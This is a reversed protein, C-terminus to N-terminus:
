HTIFVNECRLHGCAISCFVNQWLASNHWRELTLPQLFKIVVEFFTKGIASDTIQTHTKVAENICEYVWAEEEVRVIFVMEEIGELLVRALSLGGSKNEM